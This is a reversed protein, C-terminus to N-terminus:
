ALPRTSPHYTVGRRKWPHYETPRGDIVMKEKPASPATQPQAILPPPPPPSATTTVQPVVTPRTTRPRQRATIATWGEDWRQSCYLARLAVMANVHDLGWRMGAGKLRAEVVLKNASEVAGSGIPLDEAAFEAYRIHSRRTTFYALERDVIIRAEDPDKAEAVPLAALATLVTEPDGHRLAHRQIELWSSTAETGSGFVAQAVASLHQVAHPFDLIRIANPVQLDILGQCWPAGDAVAAIVEAHEMGCRHVEATVWDAFKEAETMRCVYRLHDAKVEGNIRGTLWGIVLTRVEKWDGGVVPVMVGDVSILQRVAGRKAAPLTRMIRENEAAEVLCLAEGASETLARITSASVRLDSMRALVEPAQTFPGTTGAFVIVERARETWASKKQLGLEEDLPFFGPAVARATTICENSIL